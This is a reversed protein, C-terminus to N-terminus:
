KFSVKKGNIIYVGKVMKEVKRGSLDYISLKESAVKVGGISTPIGEFFFVPEASEQTLYVTNASVQV